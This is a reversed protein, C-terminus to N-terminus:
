FVGGNFSEVILAPLGTVPCSRLSRLYIAFDDPGASVGIRFGDVLVYTRLVRRDGTISNVARERQQILESYNRLDTKQIISSPEVRPRILMVVEDASLTACNKVKGTLFRVVQRQGVRHLRKASYM